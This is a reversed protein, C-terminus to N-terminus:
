QGLSEPKNLPRKDDLVIEPLSATSITEPGVFASYIAAGHALPFDCDIEVYGFFNPKFSGVAIGVTIGPRLLGVVLPTDVGGDIFHFTVQGAKGIAGNSDLGTNSVLIQTDGGPFAQEGPVLLRTTGPPPSALAAKTTAPPSFAALFVTLGVLGATVSLLRKFRNM